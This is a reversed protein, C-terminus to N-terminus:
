LLKEFKRILGRRLHKSSVIANCMSSHIARSEKPTAEHTGGDNKKGCLSTTSTTDLCQLYGALLNLETRLETTTSTNSSNSIGISIGININHVGSEINSMNNNGRHVLTSNKQILEIIRPVMWLSPSHLSPPSLPMSDVHRIEIYTDIIEKASARVSDDPDQQFGICLELPIQEMLNEPPSSATTATATAISTAAAIDSSNGWCHKTELLLVKCLLVVERRIAESSSLSLQRLVFVLPGEVRKRVRDFFLQQQQQKAHGYNPSPPTKEKKDKDENGVNSQSIKNNNAAIAMSTLTTLLDDNSNREINPVASVHNNKTEENKTFVPDTSSLTIRLLLILSELSLQQIQVKASTTSSLSSLSSSEKSRSVNSNAIRQYLAAFVGPFVARWFAPASSVSLSSAFSKSNEEETAAMTMSMTTSPATVKLLSFLTELAAGYVRPSFGISRNPDKPDGSALFATLCDVLRMSLTGHWAEVLLVTVPYDKHGDKATGDGRNNDFCLLISRAADLIEVFADSGDDLSSPSIAAAASQSSPTTTTGRIETYTPMSHILAILHEIWTNTQLLNHQQQITNSHTVASPNTERARTVTTTTTITTEEIFTRIAVAALRYVQYVYSRRIELKREHQNNTNSKSTNNTNKDGSNSNNHTPPANYIDKLQLHFVATLPLTIYKALLCLAKAHNLRRQQQQQQNENSFEGELRMSRSLSELENTISKVLRVFSTEPVDDNAGIEKDCDQISLLSSLLAKLSTLGELLRKLIPDLRAFVVATSTSTAQFSPVGPTAAAAAAAM